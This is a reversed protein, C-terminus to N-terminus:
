IGLWNRYLIMTAEVFIGGSVFAIYRRRDTGIHGIFLWSLFLVTAVIGIQGAEIGLNFAFLPYIIDATEGLLSRFYGSFGMGHILGFIFALAYKTPSYQNADPRLNWLATVAITVPILTEIVQQPPSIIGFTALTLTAAHGVTFATMLLLVRRWEHPTYVACLAVVFLLHDYARPDTIHRLGITAYAQFETQM